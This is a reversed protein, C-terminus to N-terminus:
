RLAINALFFPELEPALTVALRASKMAAMPQLSGPPEGFILRPSVHRLQWFSGRWVIRLVRTSWLASACESSASRLLIDCHTRWQRWHLFSFTVDLPEPLRDALHESVQRIQGQFGMIPCCDALVNL